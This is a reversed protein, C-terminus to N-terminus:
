KSAAQTLSRRTTIWTGIQWTWAVFTIIWAFGHSLYKVLDMLPIVKYLIPLWGTESNPFDLIIVPMFNNAILVSTFYTFALVTLGQQIKNSSVTSRYVAMLFCVFAPPALADVGLQFRAYRVRGEQGLAEAFTIVADQDYGFHVDLPAIDGAIARLNDVETIVLGISPIMM